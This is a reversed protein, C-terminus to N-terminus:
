AVRSRIPSFPPVRLLGESVLVEGFTAGYGQRRMRAVHHAEHALTGLIRKGRQPDDLRPSDPDFSLYIRGLRALGAFGYEPIVPSSVATQLIVDMQDIPLRATIRFLADDLEHEITTRLHLPMEDFADLFIYRITM